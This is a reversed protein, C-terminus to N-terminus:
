HQSFKLSYGLKKKMAPVENCEGPKPGNCFYGREPCHTHDGFVHYPGNLIYKRLQECSVNRPLGEYERHQIASRLRLLIKESSIESNIQGLIKILNYNGYGTLMIEYFIIEVNYKKLSFIQDM